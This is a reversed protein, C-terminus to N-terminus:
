GDLSWDAAASAPDSNTLALFSRLSPHSSRAYARKSVPGSSFKPTSFCAGGRRGTEPDDRPGGTLRGFEDYIQERSVTFGPPWDGGPIPPWDRDVDFGRKLSAEGAPPPAHEFVLTKAELDVSRMRWGAALWALAHGHGGRKKQNSWWSQRLCASAPLRFGLIAEVEGFSARWGTDRSASLHRYLPAHKGSSAAERPLRERDMFGREAMSSESSSAQMSSAAARGRSRRPTRM